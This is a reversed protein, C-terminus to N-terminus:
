VPGQDTYGRNARENKDGKEEWQPGKIQIADTEARKLTVKEEKQPGKRQIAM